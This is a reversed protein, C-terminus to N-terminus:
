TIRLQTHLNKDIQSNGCVVFVTGSRHFSACVSINFNVPM